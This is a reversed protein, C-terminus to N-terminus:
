EQYDKYARKIKKLYNNYGKLMAQPIEKLKYKKYFALNAKASGAGKFLNYFEKYFEKIPLATPLLPHALDFHDYNNSILRSKVEEYLDTGPLPTLVSFLVPFIDKRRCYQRFAKFDEKSFDPRILFSAIIEIDLDKLIKVAKENDELTSEKKIYSLDDEKFFEVGVFVRALGIERWLKILQPFKVITDSRSYLFYKKKIGEEKILHALKAMRDEDVFSEADAFFVYEEKIGRLERVINGPKRKLYKGNTLKWLHCFNCRFPCGRSTVLSALPKMWESHYHERYKKTLERQPFPYADLDEIVPAKYIKEWDGQGPREGPYTGKEFKRVIDQFSIRSISPAPVQM